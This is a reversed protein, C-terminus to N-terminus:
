LCFNCWCWLLFWIGRFILAVYLYFRYCVLVLGAICRHEALVCAPMYCRCSLVWGCAFIGDYLCFWCMVRSESRVRRMEAAPSYLKVVPRNRSRPNLLVSSARSFFTVPPDATSAKSGSWFITLVMEAFMPTLLLVQTTSVILGLPLQSYPLWPLLIVPTGVTNTHYM